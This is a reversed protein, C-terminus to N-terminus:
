HRVYGLTGKARAVNSAPFPRAGGRPVKFTSGTAKRTIEEFSTTHTVISESRRSISRAKSTSSSLESRYIESSGADVEYEEERKFTNETSEHDAMHTGQGYDLDTIDHETTDADTGDIATRAPM